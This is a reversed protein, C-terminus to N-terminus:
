ISTLISFFNNPNHYKIWENKQFNAYIKYDIYDNAIKIIAKSLSESNYEIEIGSAKDLYYSMWTNKTVIVPKGAGVAETFIGSTNSHYIAKDYPILVVDSCNLLKQYDNENLNKEILDLNNLSFSKLLTVMNKINTDEESHNCQLIFYLNHFIPNNKLKTIAEVIIGFGKSKRASGMSTFIIKKYNIEKEESINIHPIPLIEVHINFYKEFEDKLLISDTVYKISYKKDIKDFLFFLIKYWIFTSTKRNLDIRNLSLRLFLILKPAYSPNYLKIFFYLAFGHLHQMTSMFLTTDSNFNLEKKAKFLGRFLFLNYIIPAIFFRSFLNSFVIDSPRNQFVVNCPIESLIKDECNISTLVNFSIKSKQSENYISKVYNYTHGNYNLLDPEILYLNKCSLM